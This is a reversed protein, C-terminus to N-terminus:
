FILFPPNSWYPGSCKSAYGSSVVQFSLTLKVVFTENLDLSFQPATVKRMATLTVVVVASAATDGLTLLSSVAVGSGDVGCESTELEFQQLLDYADDFISEPYMSKWVYQYRSGPVYACHYSYQEAATGDRVALRRVSNISRSLLATSKPLVVKM